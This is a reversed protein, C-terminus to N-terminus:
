GINKNRIQTYYMAFEQTILKNKVMLNLTDNFENNSLNSMAMGELINSIKDAYGNADIIEDRLLINAKYADKFYFNVRNSKTVKDEVIFDSALLDFLHKASHNTFYIDPGIGYLNKYATLDEVVTSHAYNPLYPKFLEAMISNNQLYAYDKSEDAPQKKLYKIQTLNYIPFTLYRPQKEILLIHFKNEGVWIYAPTQYIDLKDCRDILAMRHDRKVKYKHMTKKIKKKDYSVIVEESPTRDFPAQGEEKVTEELADEQINNKQKKKKEKKIKAKKNKKSKKDSSSEEVVEEFAEFQEDVMPEQFLYREEEKRREEEEEQVLLNYDKTPRMNPVAIKEQEIAQYEEDFEDKVNVLDDHLAVKKSKVKNAHEHPINLPREEEYIGLTQILSITVFVGLIGCFFLLMKGLIFASVFLVVSAIGSLFSFILVLKTKADGYKLTNIIKSM